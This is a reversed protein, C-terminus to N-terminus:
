TKTKQRQLLSRLEKERIHPIEDSVFEIEMADKYVVESFGYGLTKQVEM